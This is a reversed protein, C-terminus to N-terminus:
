PNVGGPGRLWAVELVALAADRDAHVQTEIMAARRDLSDIWETLGGRGARFSARTAGWGGASARDLMPAHSTSREHALSSRDRAEQLRIRLDLVQELYRELARDRLTAAAEIRGRYSSPFPLRLSLVGGLRTPDLDGEPFGLHPGVQLGPWARAAVTRLSAEAVALELRAVRLVPHRSAPETRSDEFGRLDMLGAHDQTRVRESPLGSARSLAARAAAVSDLALTRKLEVAHAAARAADAAAASLRGHDELILARRLDARAETSLLDLRRAHTGAAEFEIRSRDVAFRAEWLARELRALAALTESRAFAVDAASPGLGLLGVLDFTAVTEVLIDDGGFEHDVLRAVVDGPAGASGELALAALAQARAERVAPSFAYAAAHWYGSCSPDALESEDPPRLDLAELDALDLAEKVLDARPERELLRAEAARVDEVERMPSACAAVTILTLFTKPM